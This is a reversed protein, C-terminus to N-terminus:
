IGLILGCVCYLLIPPYITPIYLDSVFVSIYLNPFLGRLKMEPFIQKYNQYLTGSVIFPKLTKVIQLNYLNKLM